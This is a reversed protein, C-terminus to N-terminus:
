YALPDPSHQRDSKRDQTVCTRWGAPNIVLRTVEGERCGNVAAGESSRVSLSLAGGFAGPKVYSVYTKTKEVDQFKGSFPAQLSYVATNSVFKFTYNTKNESKVKIRWKWREQPYKEINNKWIGKSYLTLLNKASSRSPPAYTWKKTPKLYIKGEKDYQNNDNIQHKNNELNPESFYTAKYDRTCLLLRVFWPRKPLVSM